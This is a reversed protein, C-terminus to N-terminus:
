NIRYALLKDKLLKFKAKKLPKTLIKPYIESKYVSKKVARHPPEAADNYPPGVTKCISFPSKMVPTEAAATKQVDAGGIVIVKFIFKHPFIGNKENNSNDTPQKIEADETLRPNLPVGEDPKM